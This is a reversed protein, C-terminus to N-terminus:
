LAVPALSLDPSEIYEEDDVYPLKSWDVPRYNIKLHQMRDPEEEWWLPNMELDNQLSPRLFNKVFVQDTARDLVYAQKNIIYAPCSTEGRLFAYAKETLRYEVEEPSKEEGDQRLRARKEALGFHVLYNYNTSFNRGVGPSVHPFDTAYRLWDLGRYRHQQSMALLLLVMSFDLKAVHALLTPEGLLSKMREGARAVIFACERMEKVSDGTYEWFGGLEERFVMPYPFMEPTLKSKSM